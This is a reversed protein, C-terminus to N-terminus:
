KGLLIATRIGFSSFHRGPSQENKLVPTISYQVYPGISFGSNTHLLFATAFFLQNKQLLDNNQYYGSLTSSYHLMNSAILRKYSLANDWYLNLKKGQIVKLSFATSAGLLHYNNTYRIGGSGSTARYFGNSFVGTGSSISGPAFASDVRNGVNFSWSLYNYSFAFRLVSKSKIQKQIFLSGAFTAGRKTTSSNASGISANPSNNITAADFLASKELIGFGDALASSGTLIGIGLSWNNKKKLKITNDPVMAVVMSDQKETASTLQVSGNISDTHAATTTVLSTIENTQMFEVSNKNNVKQQVANEIVSTKEETVAVPLIPQKTEYEESKLPRVTTLLPKIEDHVQKTTSKPKINNVIKKNTVPKFAIPKDYPVPNNDGNENILQAATNNVVVQQKVSNIKSSVDPEANKKEATKNSIITAIPNSITKKTNNNNNVSFYV